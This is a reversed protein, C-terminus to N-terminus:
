FTWETKLSFLICKENEGLVENFSTNMLWVFMKALRVTNSSLGFYLILTRLSIFSQISVYLFHLLVCVSVRSLETAHLVCAQTRGPGCSQGQNIARQDEETVAWSLGGGPGSCRPCVSVKGGAPRKRFQERQRSPERGPRQLAQGGGGAAGRQQRGGGLLAAGAGVGSSEVQKELRVKKVSKM